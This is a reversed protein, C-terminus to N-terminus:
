FMTIAVYYVMEWRHDREIQKFSRKLLEHYVQAFCDSLKVKKKWKEHKVCLFLCKAILLIRWMWMSLTMINRLSLNAHKKFKKKLLFKCIMHLRCNLEDIWRFMWKCHLPTKLQNFFRSLTAISFISLWSVFDSFLRLSWLIVNFIPM